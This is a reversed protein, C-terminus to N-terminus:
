AVLYGQMRKSKELLKGKLLVCKKVFKTETIVEEGIWEGQSSYHFVVVDKDDFMWFDEPQFDLENLISQYEGLPLFYFQEGYKVSHRWFAMEYKVYDNLPETIVRVRRVDVGAETARKLQAFWEQADQTIEIVSKGKALYKEFNEIDGEVRYEPLAELRFISKTCTRWFGDFKSASM